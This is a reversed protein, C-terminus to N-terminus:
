AIRFRDARRTECLQGIEILHSIHAAIWPRPRGIRPAAETLDKATLYTRGAAALETLLADIVAAAREPTSYGPRNEALDDRFFTLLRKFQGNTLNTTGLYGWAPPQRIEIRVATPGPDADITAWNRLAAAFVRATTGEQQQRNM